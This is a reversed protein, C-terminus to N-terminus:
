FGFLCPTIEGQLCILLNDLDEALESIYEAETSKIDERYIFAQKKEGIWWDDLELPWKDPLEELSAEEDWSEVNSQAKM